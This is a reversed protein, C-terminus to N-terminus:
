RRQRKPRRAIDDILIALRAQGADARRPLRGATALSRASGPLIHVAAAESCSVHRTRGDVQPAAVAQTFRRRLSAHEVIVATGLALVAGQEAALFGHADVEDLVRHWEPTSAASAG